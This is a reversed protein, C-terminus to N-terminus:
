PIFPLTPPPGCRPPCPKPSRRWRQAPDLQMPKESVYPSSRWRGWPPRSRPRCLPPARCSRPSASPWGPTRRARRWGIKLRRDPQRSPSMAPTLLRRKSMRKRRGPQRPGLQNRWPRLHTPDARRKPSTKPAQRSWARKRHGPPHARWLRRPRQCPGRRSPSQPPMMPLPSLKPRQRNAPLSMPQLPKKPRPSLAQQRSQRSNSRSGRKPTWHSPRSRLLCLRKSQSAM